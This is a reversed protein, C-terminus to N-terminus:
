VCAFRRRLPICHIHGTCSQSLAKEEALFMTCDVGKALHVLFDELEHGSLEGDLSLLVSAGHEDGPKM